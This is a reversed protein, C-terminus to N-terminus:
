RDAALKKGCVVAGATGLMLVAALVVYTYNVESEPVNTKRVADLDIDALKQGAANYVECVVDNEHVPSQSYTYTMTLNLAECATAMQELVFNVEEKSYNDMSGGKNTTIVAKCEDICAIVVKAQEADVTVQKLVNEALPMYGKVYEAPLDEKIHNLIDEKPTAASAPLATMVVMSALLLCLALVSILKKLM